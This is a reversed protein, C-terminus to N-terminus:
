SAINPLLNVMLISQKTEQLSLCMGVVVEKTAIDVKPPLFYDPMNFFLTPNAFVKEMVLKKSQPGLCIFLSKHWPKM